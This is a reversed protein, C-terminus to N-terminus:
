EIEKRFLGLSTGSDPWTPSPEFLDITQDIVNFRRFILGPHLCGKWCNMKWNEDNINGGIILMLPEPVRKAIRRLTTHDEGSMASEGNPHSHWDGLYDIDDDTEHFIRHIESVQWAHDPFFQHRGHLAKPGPGLVNIVVRDKGTRWGLLVGGSELPHRAVSEECMEDLARNALWVRM